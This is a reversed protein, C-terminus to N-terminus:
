AKARIVKEWEEYDNIVILDCVNDSMLGDKYNSSAIDCSNNTGFMENAYYQCGCGCYSGGIIANMEKQRIENASLDSLKFRKIKM